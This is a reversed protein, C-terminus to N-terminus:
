WGWGCGWGCGCGGWGCGGWGWGGWGGWGGGWGWGGWGWGGWRHWHRWGWSSPQVAKQTKSAQVTRNTGQFVATTAVQQTSLTASRHNTNVSRASAGPALLTLALLLGFVLAVGVRAMKFM